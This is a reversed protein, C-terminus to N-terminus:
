IPRVDEVLWGWLKGPFMMCYLTVNNKRSVSKGVIKFGLKEYFGVAQNTKVFVPRGGAVEIVKKVLATGIGMKQYSPEVALETIYVCNQRNDLRANVYGVVSGNNLAVYVRGKKISDFHQESSVFWWKSLTNRYIRRISTHEEVRAKRVECM